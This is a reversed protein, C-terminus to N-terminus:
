ARYRDLRLAHEESQENKQTEGKLGYDAVGDEAFNRRTYGEGFRDPQGGPVLRGFGNCGRCLRPEVFVTQNSGEGPHVQGHNGRRYGDNDAAHYHDVGETDDAFNVM